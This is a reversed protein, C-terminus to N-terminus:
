KQKWHRLRLKKPSVVKAGFDLARAVSKLTMLWLAETMRTDLHLQIIAEVHGAFDCAEELRGRALPDDDEDAPTLNWDNADTGLVVLKRKFSHEANASRGRMNRAARSPRTLRLADSAEDWLSDEDDDSSVMFDNAHSIFGM